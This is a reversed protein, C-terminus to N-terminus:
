ATRLTAILQKGIHETYAPPIAQAMEKMTMWDIGMAKQWLGRPGRSCGQGYVHVVKSREGARATGSSRGCPYDGKFAKHRCGGPSFLLLSSEFLRHRRVLLGFMSGCLTMPTDMPAGEVNEIVYPLGTQRLLHRTTPLLDPHSESLGPISKTAVSYRQCPPSAHIADFEDLRVGLVTAGSLLGRMFDLADSELFAFPYRPQPEHDVGWVDFGARHYGMAAGGAKCFLDLLKPRM